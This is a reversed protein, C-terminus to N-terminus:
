FEPESEMLILVEGGGGGWGQLASLKGTYPVGHQGRRAQEIEITQCLASTKLVDAKQQCTEQMTSTKTGKTIIPGACYSSLAYTGEM